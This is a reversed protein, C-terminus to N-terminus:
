HVPYVCSCNEHPSKGSLTVFMETYRGGGGGRGGFLFFVVYIFLCSELLHIENMNAPWLFSKVRDTM